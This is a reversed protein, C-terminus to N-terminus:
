CGGSAGGSFRRSRSANDDGFAISRFFRPLYALSPDYAIERRAEFQDKAKKYIEIDLARGYKIGSRLSVEANKSMLQQTAAFNGPVNFTLPGVLAFPFSDALTTIHVTREGRKLLHYVFTEGDYIAECSPVPGDGEQQSVLRSGGTLRIVYHECVGDHGWRGKLVYTPEDALGPGPAFQELRRVLDSIDEMQYYRCEFSVEVKVSALNARLADMPGPRAQAIVAFVLFTFM